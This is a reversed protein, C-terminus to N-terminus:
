PTDIYNQLVTIYQKLVEKIKKHKENSIGNRGLYNQTLCNISGIAKGIVNKPIFEIVAEFAILRPTNLIKARQKLMRFIAERDRPRPLKPYSITWKTKAVTEKKQQGTVENKM